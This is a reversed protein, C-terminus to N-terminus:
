DMCVHASGGECICAHACVCVCVCVCIVLIKSCMHVHQYKWIGRFCLPGPVHHSPDPTIVLAVPTQSGRQSWGRWSAFARWLWNSLAQHTRCPSWWHSTLQTWPTWPLLHLRLHQCPRLWTERVNMRHLVPVFLIPLWHRTCLFCCFAERHGPARWPWPSERPTRNKFSQRAEWSQLKSTRFMQSGIKTVKFFFSANSLNPCYM